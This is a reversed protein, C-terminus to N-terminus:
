RPSMAAGALGAGAENGAMAADAVSGMAKGPDIGTGMAASMQGLNM